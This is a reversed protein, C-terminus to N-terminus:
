KVGKHTVITPKVDIPALDEGGPEETAMAWLECTGRIDDMVKGGGGFTQVRLAKYDLATPEKQVIELNEGTRTKITSTVEKYGLALADAVFAPTICSIIFKDDLWQPLEIGTAKLKTMSLATGNFATDKNFYLGPPKDEPYAKKISESQFPYLSAWVEPKARWACFKTFNSFWTDITTHVSKDFLDKRLKFNIGTNMMKKDMYSLGLLSTLDMRFFYHTADFGNLRIVSAYNSTTKPVDELVGKKWKKPPVAFTSIRNVIGDALNTWIRLNADSIQDVGFAIIQNTM